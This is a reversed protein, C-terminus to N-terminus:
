PKFKKIVDGLVANGPNDRAADQWTRVAEDRRGLMWLVEGLHAAIEPDPRTEYASRLQVLAGELDGKRYLVWGLSDVIFPDNPALELAKRILTEAEDLRQNREVLSYGLANYAHAHDPKLAILKRLRGEMVEPRGLREATLASEYLYDPSDPSALLAADLVEFSEENRGADRLLQAEALVYQSREAPVAERTREQLLQRAEALRGRAALIQALKGQAAPYRAGPAVEKYWGMADDPRRADEAIQGLYMRLTDAEAFGLTLLRKFHTEAAAGDGAQLALLGAAHLLEKDDPAGKLLVEFHQRAPGFQRAGVLLRALASRVERADPHAALYDQLTQIGVGPTTEQQFQAKLIVAQEWDPRLALAGDLAVAAAPSDGAVFAANARAFHAEPRQLYPETLQTVLRRILDKDPIRALGRNLGMLAPGINDGQRALAAALQTELEDYRAQNVLTGSVLQQAQESGPELELWLRAAEGTLEAQRSLFAIEAARRAIRPDRTRQALDIYSRIAMSPQARAAAIEALMMQYIIQPTLEQAPYVAAPGAAPAEEEISPPQQAHAAGALLGASLLVVLIRPSFAARIIPTMFNEAFVCSTGDGRM